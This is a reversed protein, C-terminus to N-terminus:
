KKKKKGEKALMIDIHESIKTRLRRLMQRDADSACHGPLNCERQELCKDLMAQQGPTLIVRLDELQLLLPVEDIEVVIDDETLREMLDAKRPKLKRLRVASRVIMRLYVDFSAKEPQFARLLRCNDLYLREIVECAIQEGDLDGRGRRLLKNALEVLLPRYETDLQTWARDKNSICADWIADTQQRPNEFEPM